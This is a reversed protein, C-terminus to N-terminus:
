PSTSPSIRVWGIHCHMLWVGPNDTYFAVVLYGSQGQAPNAPMVAVDRRPPNQLNLAVSSSYTGLGQALILFDHGHLHIPHLLPIPTEIIVYVWQNLEPAQIALTGSTTPITGNTYISELTPDSWESYFTTGDLTWKFLNTGQYPGIVVTEDITQAQAGANWQVIPVLSEYPEDQCVPTYSQATSTPEASTADDYHVIAKIDYSNTLNGCLEVNDSRMWYNGSPQNAKLIVDYRQGINIIVTNTTYPQIPVYDMAIVELEHQDVYFMFTSQIATNVLRLRYSKGSQVSMQFRSGGNEWVNLGNILGTDLTQAGSNPGGVVESPGILQDVPVHNWDQLVVFQEDDYEYGEQVPGHITMPGFMGEYTQLALHSHYWSSGYSTARFRYTFTQGPALPCQTISTVGDMENTYNQRMGHFHLSTGNYGELPLTNTLHVVIEDGWNAEIMPGPMQGNITFAWRDVGDPSITTNELNWHYEVTRCTNPM